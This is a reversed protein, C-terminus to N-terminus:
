GLLSGVTGRIDRNFVRMFADIATSKLHYSRKLYSIVASRSATIEGSIIGNVLQRKIRDYPSDHAGELDQKLIANVGTLDSMDTQNSIEMAKRLVEEKEMYRDLGSVFSSLDGFSLLLDDNAKALSVACGPSVTAYTPAIAIHNWLISSVLDKAKNLEADFVKRARLVGGGVSASFVPQEADLHPLISKEVIPHAKTLNGYVVPLGDEWAFDTPHGLIAHAKEEATKGLMSKHFWDIVGTSLFGDVTAKNFAQPLLQQNEKDVTLMNAIMRVPVVKDNEQRNSAKELSWNGIQFNM